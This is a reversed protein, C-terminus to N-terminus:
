RHGIRQGTRESTPLSRRPPTRPRVATASRKGGESALPVRHPAQKTRAVMLRPWSRASRRHGHGKRATTRAKSCNSPKATTPSAASASDAQVRDPPQSWIHRHHHEADLKGVQVTELDGAPQSLGPVRRHYHQHGAGVAGGVPPPKCPAVKAESRPRVLQRGQGGSPSAPPQLEQREAPGTRSV